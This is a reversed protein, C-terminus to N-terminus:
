NEIDEALACEPLDDLTLIELSLFDHSDLDDLVSSGIEVLTHHFHGHQIKYTERKKRRM